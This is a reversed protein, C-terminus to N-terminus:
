TLGHFFPCAGATSEVVYDLSELERELVLLLPLWDSFTVKVSQFTEFYLINEKRLLFVLIALLKHNKHEKQV